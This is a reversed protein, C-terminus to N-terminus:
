RSAQKERKEIEEKRESVTILENEWYLRPDTNHGQCKVYLNLALSTPTIDAIGNDDFGSESWLLDLHRLYDLERDLRHLEKIESILMLSYFDTKLCESSGILGDEYLVKRVSICSQKLIKAQAVTLQKLLNVFILNEDNQGSKTCSAAFLGAWMEQLEEDDVLSSNDIIGLAVRPHIQLQENQFILKGKSKEIIQLINKLRWYQIKDRFMLGLEESAPVCVSKLFGEIGQFLKEVTTNVAKGIPQIGLLDIGSKEIKM